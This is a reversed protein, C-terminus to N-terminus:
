RQGGDKQSQYRSLRSIIHYRNKKELIIGPFQNGTRIEQGRRQIRRRGTKMSKAIERSSQNEQLVFLKRAQLLNVDGSMEGREDKPEYVVIQPMSNVKM